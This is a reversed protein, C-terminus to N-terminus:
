GDINTKLTKFNINTGDSTLKITGDIDTRYIKINKAELREIVTDSPHKYTNNKGVEIIAYKPNVKEIFSESTSYNSGHHGIKIVDSSIDKKILKKEVKSTADGTFLYKTNKYTLKLVISSNNLNKEDTGTYLVKFHLDDYDIEEDIKPITIKYKKEEIADLVSEFTKTTTTVDPLYIKDIEFEKIVDDLGGIHDEHPHTGILLNIKIINLENKLYETLNKGDENNGADILINNEKEKILISDAQGVDLFYIELLDKKNEQLELGNNKENGKEVIKNTTKTKDIVEKKTYALVILLSLILIIINLIKNLKNKKM